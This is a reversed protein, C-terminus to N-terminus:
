SISGIRMRQLEVEPRERGNWRSSKVVALAEIPKGVELWPWQERARFAIARIDGDSLTITMQAHSSDKGVWRIDRVVGTAYFKVEPNAQGTPELQRLQDLGAQSIYDARLQLDAQIVQRLQETQDSRAAYESLSSRLAPINETPLTMGAAAAHGGFRDFLEPTQRLATILSFNAVSRASGKAREGEIQLIVTPKGHREAIRSAVLGAVGHSWTEDALVLARHDACQSAQQDAEAVIRDTLERRALNLEDLIKAHQRASEQSASMLLGLSTRAHELRGAANLRPGFRFSFDRATIETLESASVEALARFGPRRSQRAVTLGFTALTRNEGVLPVVDCITGLAVLDLFWKEQGQPLVDPFKQQLARVLTFAVGVGSLFREPYANSERLPNILAIAGEPEAEALTHHDTIIIDLGNSAAEAIVEGATIGCDVTVVTDVGQQQLEALAPAHLGYGEVFRDPIYSITDIGLRQFVETLLATATLGDIDYDGYVAVKKGDRRVQELHAIALEMDPLLFPDGLSEYSPRLFNDLPELGRRQAVVKALDRVPIDGEPPLKWEVQDEQYKM